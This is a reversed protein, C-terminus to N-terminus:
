EHSQEQAEIMAKCHAAVKEAEEKTKFFEWFGVQDNSEDWVKTAYLTDSETILYEKHEVAQVQGPDLDCLSNDIGDQDWWMGEHDDLYWDETHKKDVLVFGEPTAKADKLQINLDDIVVQKQRSQILWLAFASNVAREAFEKIVDDASAMSPILVYMNDIISFSKFDGGLKIWEIEFAKREEEINIM